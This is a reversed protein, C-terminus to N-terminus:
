SWRHRDGIIKVTPEPARWDADAKRSRYRPRPDTGATPARNVTIPMLPRHDADTTPRPGRLRDETESM